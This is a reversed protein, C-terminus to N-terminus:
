PAGRAEIGTGVTPPPEEGDTASTRRRWQADRKTVRLMWAELRRLGGVFGSPLVLMLVILVGGFIVRSLEANVDSSWEPVFVVFLAGLVPGLISAAGGIVLAALFEISRSITYQGPDVRTLVATNTVYLAGGLGAIMASIGFTVVKYLALNVGLVEAAIEGDRIAIIARGVRSRILNRVLVFTVVAFTLILYYAYQDETFTDAAWAPPDFHPVRIGGSGGTIDSYKQIILPFLTALALTVLALYVGSIRLAPIGCLVGVVFCILMAVPITALHNWGHDATLIATTYAGTGFFAGHGVSIQGNFGTLLGLGLVAIAITIASTFQATRFEPYYMPLYLVYAVIVLTAVGLVVRRPTPQLRKV